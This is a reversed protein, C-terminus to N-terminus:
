SWNRVRALLNPTHTTIYEHMLTSLPDPYRYFENDLDNLLDAASEGLQLLKDQRVFRDRPPGDPGFVANARSAIAAMTPAGIRELASPAFFAYDGWSNFFYQDFGGNNVDAELGWVTVIVREAETLEEFRRGAVAAIVLNTVAIVENDVDSEM